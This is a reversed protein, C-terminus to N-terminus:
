PTPFTESSFIEWQSAAPEGAATISLISVNRSAPQVVGITRNVEGSWRPWNSRNKDSTAGAKARKAAVGPEAPASLRYRLRVPM